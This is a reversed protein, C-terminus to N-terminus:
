RASSWELDGHALWQLWIMKIQKEWDDWKCLKNVRWYDLRTLSFDDCVCGYKKLHIEWLVHTIKWGNCRLVVYGDQHGLSKAAAVRGSRGFYSRSALQSRPPDPFGVQFHDMALNWPLDHPIYHSYLSFIFTFMTNKQVVLHENNIIGRQCHCDFWGHAIAKQECVILNWPAPPIKMIHIYICM